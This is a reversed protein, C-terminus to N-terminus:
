SDGSNNPFNGNRDKEGHPGSGTATRAAAPPGSNCRKSPSTIQSSELAAVAQGNGEHLLYDAFGTRGERATTGGPRRQNSLSQSVRALLTLTRGLEYSIQWGGPSLRRTRGKM